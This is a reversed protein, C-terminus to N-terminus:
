NHTIPHSSKQSKLEIEIIKGFRAASDESNAFEEAFKEDADAYAEFLDLQKRTRFYGIFYGLAGFTAIGAPTTEIPQLGTAECLSAGVLAGVLATRAMASRIGNYSRLYSLSEVFARNINSGLSIAHGTEHALTYNHEASLASDTQSRFSEPANVPESSKSQSYAISRPFIDLRNRSVDYQGKLVEEINFLGKNIKSVHYPAQSFCLRVAMDDIRSEPLRSAVLGETYGDRDFSFEGLYPKLRKSVQVSPGTM